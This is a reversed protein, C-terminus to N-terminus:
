VDKKSHRKNAGQQLEIVWVWNLLNNIGEAKTRIEAPDRWPTAAHWSQWSTSLDSSQTSGLNRPCSQWWIAGKDSCGPVQPKKFMQATQEVRCCKVGMWLPAEFRGTGGYRPVPHCGTFPDICRILLSLWSSRMSLCDKRPPGVRDWEYISKKFCSPQPLNCISGWGISKCLKM